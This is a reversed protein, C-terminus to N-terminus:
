KKKKKHKLRDAMRTLASAQLYYDQAHTKLTPYDKALERLVDGQEKESGAMDLFLRRTGLISWRKLFKLDADTGTVEKKTIVALATITKQRSRAAKLLPESFSPDKDFMQAIGEYTIVANAAYQQAKALMKEHKKDM